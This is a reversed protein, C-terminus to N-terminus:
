APVEQTRSTDGTSAVRNAAQLRDLLDLQAGFLEPSPVAYQSKPNVKYILTGQKARYAISPKGDWAAMLGLVGADALRSALEQDKTKITWDNGNKASVLSWDRGGPTGTLSLEYTYTTSDDDSVHSLKAQVPQGNHTGTLTGGKFTGNVQPAITPWLQSFKANNRRWAWVIIVGALAFIAIIGAAVYWPM